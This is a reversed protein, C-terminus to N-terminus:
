GENKIEGLFYTATIMPITLIQQGFTTKHRKIDNTTTNQRM